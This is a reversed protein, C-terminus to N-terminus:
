DAIVHNAISHYTGKSQVLSHTMVLLTANVRKRDWKQIQLLTYMKTYSPAQLAARDKELIIM